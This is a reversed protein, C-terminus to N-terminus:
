KVQAACLLLSYYKEEFSSGRSSLVIPVKAGVIIGTMGAGGLVILLKSALNGAAMSPVLLIDVDGTVKSNYGKIAAAEKSFSLDCSIPGELNLKGFRGEDAMKKLEAAETSEIVKPNVKEAAAIVAVNPCDYGLNRFLSLANNLIGIKQDLTPHPIMGGDTFAVLKHYSPIELIAVHSMVGGMGIGTEKNVVEKLLTATELKGKMLFHGKKERILKVAEFACAKDEEIDIIAEEDVTYNLKKAIDIIKEKQGVLTYKIYGESHAKLVAELAHEDHAAAVVVRKGPNEKVAVTLEKFNKLAM